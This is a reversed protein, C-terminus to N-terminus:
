LKYFTFQSISKEVDSDKEIYANLKHGMFGHTKLYGLNVLSRLFTSKRDNISKWLATNKENDFQHMDIKERFINIKGGV